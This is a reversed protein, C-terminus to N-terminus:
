DDFFNVAALDEYYKEGPKVTKVEEKVAAEDVTVTVDGSKITNFWSFAARQEEETTARGNKVDVVYWSGKDNQHKVSSLLFTQAAPSKNQRRLRQITTLIAKGAKLSTRSLSFCYPLVEDMNSRALICYFNFTKDREINGEKWPANANEVTIPEIKVFQGDEKIVWTKFFDFVIVEVPNIEGGLLSGDISDVFQGPRATGQEVFDSTKQQLLIKPIILDDTEVEGSFDWDNIISLEKNKDM